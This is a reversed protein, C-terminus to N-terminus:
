LRCICPLRYCDAYLLLLLHNPHVQRFCDKTMSLQIHSQGTNATFL